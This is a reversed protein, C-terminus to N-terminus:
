PRIEKQTLAFISCSAKGGAPVAEKPPNIDVDFSSLYESVRKQYKSGEEMLWKRIEPLKDARLNDFEVTVHLNKPTSVGAATDNQINETVAEVLNDLDRSLLRYSEKPDQQPVFAHAVLRVGAECREIARIRELEQLVTGPHLDLSITEVLRKFSQKPGDIPLDKPSGDASRFRRDHIWQGIVRNPLGAPVPESNEDELLRTVDRRQLGTAASLRSINRLGSMERQAVEVFVRKAAESLDQM